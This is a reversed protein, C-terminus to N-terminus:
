DSSPERKHAERKLKELASELSLKGGRVLTQLKLARIVLEADVQNNKVLVRGLPMDVSKSYSLSIMLVDRSVAGAAVLLEGLLAVTGEQPVFGQKKLQEEFELCEITSEARAKVYPNTDDALIKLLYPALACDEALSLRVDVNEDNVLSHLIDPSAAPNSALCVRVDPDPDKSLTILLDAPCAPNEALRRRVLSSGNEYLSKLIDPSQLPDGATFFRGSM